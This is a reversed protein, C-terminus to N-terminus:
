FLTDNGDGRFRPVRSDMSNNSKLIFSKGLRKKGANDIAKHLFYQQLLTDNFGIRLGVHIWPKIDDLSERIYQKFLAFSDAFNSSMLDIMAFDFIKQTSNNKYISKSNRGLYIFLDNLISKSYLGKTDNIYGTGNRVRALLTKWERKVVLSITDDSKSGCACTGAFIVISAFFYISLKTVWVRTM